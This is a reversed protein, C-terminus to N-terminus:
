LGATSMRKLLYLGLGAALVDLAAGPSWGRPRWQSDLWELAGRVGLRSAMREAQRAESLAAQYARSGWRALILTDGRRALLGLLAALAADELGEGGEVGEEVERAVRLSEPYGGLVEGHVLDWSAAELVVRMCCPYSGSGVGPVPGEYRGLHGPSLYELLEYYARAAEGGAELAVRSAERALAGLGGPPPGGHLAAALPAALLLTGAAINSKYGLAELGARYARFAAELGRPGGRRCAEILAATLPALAAEFDVVGKDPHSWLRTVAGPKPHLVPELAAGAALAAVGACSGALM